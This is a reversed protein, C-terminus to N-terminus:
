LAKKGVEMVTKVDASIKELDSKMEKQIDLMESATVQPAPKHNHHHHQHASDGEAHEHNHEVGPVEVVNSEWTEFRKVVSDIDAVAQTAAPTKLAALSNKLSALSDVQPELAEQIESAQLHIEGAEKLTAEDAANKGGCGALLALALLTPTLLRFTM